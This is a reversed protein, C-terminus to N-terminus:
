GHIFVSSCLHLLVVNDTNMQTLGHNFNPQNM